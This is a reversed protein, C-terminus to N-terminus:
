SIEPNLIWFCSLYRFGTPKPSQYHHIQISWFASFYSLSKLVWSESVSCSVSCFVSNLWSVHVRARFVTAWLPLSKLEMSRREFKVGSKWVQSRVKLSSEPGEFEVGSKWVQSWVEFPLGKVESKWVRSWVKFSHLRRGWVKSSLESVKLRVSEFRIRLMSAPQAACALRAPWVRTAQSILRM